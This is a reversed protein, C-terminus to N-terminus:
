AIAVRLRQRLVFHAETAAFALLALVDPRAAAAALAAAGEPPKRGGGRLLLAVAAAVDGCLLLGARDATAAAAARWAALDPAPGGALARAAEEIARRGRRGLAKALRQARPDGAPVGADPLACRIAASVLAGLVDPPLTEALASRTRLRAAARGALFRQERLTTRRAIDPGVRVRWPTGPEVEVRGAEGRALEWGPAAFATAAEALLPELAHGRLPEDSRAPPREAVEAMADGAAEVLASLPGADGPARLLALDTASLAPPAALTQRAAEFLLRDAAPGPSPAGLWRLVTAAVYARDHARERQFHRFLASWSAARLPDAALLRRHEAIADAPPGEEVLAALASRAEERSPDLALASRLHSVALTRDGIPGALLRSAELHADARLAADRAHEGAATLTALRARADGGRGALRVLRRHAEDHGPDLALARQCAGAAADLAGRREDAEALALLHDLLAERPIGPVDVLRRLAAAAEPPRGAALRVRALRALAEPSEPALSLAANLHQLAREGDRLGEECLAAAGLHLMLRAPSEGGLALAAELDALALAPSGSEAHLRARLELAASLDPRAQVAHDLAALAAEPGSGAAVMARAAALWSEAARRPDREARARAEHAAAVEIGASSGLARELRRVPEPDLPDREAAKRYARAAGDPDALHAEAVAGAELWAAAAGHPDRLAAGEAELTRRVEAWDGRRALLARAGRLAPLSAPATELAARFAALAREADGAAAWAEGAAAAWSARSAPDPDADRRGECFRALAAPDGAERLRREEEPALLADGPALAAAQALASRRAPGAPLEVAAAALLAARTAPDQAAGALSALAHARRARDPALRLELLLAAPHGPAAALLAETTQLARAPDRVRDAELRALRLLREARADADEAAAAVRRLAALNDARGAEGYLRDLARLAPAFDPTTRLAEEYHDIARAPDGLREEAIRAAQVLVAAREATPPRATAQARLVEALGEDDGRLRHLRALARLAPLHAPSLLLAERYAALAEDLRGLRREALEGVRQLLDAAAAPDSSADAEARHLAALEEWRGARAHLRALARLAPVDRPAAARVDQWAAVAREPDHLHEEVLEARRQLLALRERPDDAAAAERELLEELEEVRGLRGLAAALARRAVRSEPDLELMRRYLGAAADLDGLREERIRAIRFLHAAREAPSRLEELGAELAACLEEWRGGAECLRELATRAALLGPDLSLAERYRALAADPRGLRLELVEAARWTREARERPDRALRAEADFAAHLGEFDGVAASLRGAGSLARRNAPDIELVDRFCELAVNARGLQTEEIEARGLKALVAERVNAPEELALHASALADLAESADAWAGRAERLRALESLLVPERPAVARGRELAAIAAETRGLREELHALALWAEAGAPGPSSEAEARLIDALVDDRRLREAHRRAAGRLLPDGPLLAFAELALAGGREPQGLAEDLLASAASLYHASLRRDATARACRFYAEALSAADGSRAAERAAEEAAAYRGPAAAAARDLADDSEADRGLASLLRGRLLLLDARAIPDPTAGAEADLAEAALADDGRDLALRRCARLNPLHRPDLALARRRLSLAREPDGLREELVRAADHLPQAAAPRAGLAAAERELGAAVAAWDMADGPQAPPAEIRAALEDAISDAREPSDGPPPWSSPDRVTPPQM